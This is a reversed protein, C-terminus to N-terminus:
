RRGAPPLAVGAQRAVAQHKRRGRRPPRPPANSVKSKSSKHLDEKPQGNHASVGPWKVLIAMLFQKLYPNFM